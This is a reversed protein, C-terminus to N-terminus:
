PAREDKREIPVVHTAVLGPQATVIASAPTRELDLSEGARVEVLLAGPSNGGYAFTARGRAVQHLTWASERVREGLRVVHLTADDARVVVAATDTAVRLLRVSDAARADPNAFAFFSAGAVLVSPFCWRM